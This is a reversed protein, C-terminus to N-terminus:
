PRPAAIEPNTLRMRLLSYAPTLIDPPAALGGDSQSIADMQGGFRMSNVPEFRGLVAQHRESRAMAAKHDELQRDFKRVLCGSDV